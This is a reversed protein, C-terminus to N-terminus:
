SASGGPIDENGSWDSVTINDIELEEKGVTLNYTYSKGSTSPHNISAKLFKGAISIRIFPYAFNSSLSNPILVVYESGVSGDGTKVYPKIVHFTSFGGVIEGHTIGDNSAGWIKLDDIKTGNTFENKFGSIRIIYRNTMRNMKLSLPGDSKFHTLSGYTMLDAQAIGQLTSQDLVISHNSSGDANCPYQAMVDIENSTWIHFKGGQPKWGQSTLEYRVNVGNIYVGISEGINFVGQDTNNGIPNSRTLTSFPNNVTANIKVIDNPELIQPNDIDKSCAAIGFTIATAICYKIIKKM